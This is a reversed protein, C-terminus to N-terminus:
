ESGSINAEKNKKARVYAEKWPPTMNEGACAHMLFCLFTSSQPTNTEWSKKKKVKVQRTNPNKGDGQESTKSIHYAINVMEKLVYSSWANTNLNGWNKERRNTGCQSIRHKPILLIFALCKSPYIEQVTQKCGEVFGWATHYFWKHICFWPSFSSQLLCLMSAKNWLSLAETSSTDGELFKHFGPM